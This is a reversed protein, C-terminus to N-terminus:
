ANKRILVEGRLKAYLIYYMSFKSKFTGRGHPLGESFDGIYNDGNPWKIEGNGCIDMNVM